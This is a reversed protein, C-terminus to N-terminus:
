CINFHLDAGMGGNTRAFFNSGGGDRCALQEINQTRQRLRMLHSKRYGILAHRHLCTFRAKGQLRESGFFKRRDRLGLM